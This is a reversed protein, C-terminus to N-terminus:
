FPLGHARGAMCMIMPVSLIFNTRSAYFAPKRAKAKEEDTAYVLGIWMVGALVHLWRAAIAHNFAFANGLVVQTLVIAIAIALIFATILANRVTTFPNM